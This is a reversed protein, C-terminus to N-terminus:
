TQQKKQLKLFTKLTHIPNENAGPSFPMKRKKQPLNVETIQQYRVQQICYRLVPSLLCLNCAYNYTIIIEGDSNNFPWQTATRLM